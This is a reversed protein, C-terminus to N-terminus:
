GAKDLLGRLDHKANLINAWLDGIRAVRDPVTLMTLETPYVKGVEDWTLPTSVTAEPSVRPSYVSAVTKGRVNQNYDLFVKGTRKPVAWDITAERPHQAALHGCLTRAASHVAHYDLQRLIPVFIHLGTRGSTKVFSSLSLAELLEKLWMAAECTKAYGVKHLEPEEGKAEKGSYLYPDLDFVIFDPYNLLSAEINKL